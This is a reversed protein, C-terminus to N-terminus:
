SKVTIHLRKKIEISVMLILFIPEIPFTTNKKNNPM